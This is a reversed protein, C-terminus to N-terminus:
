GAAAAARGLFGTGTGVAIIRDPPTWTKISEGLQRSRDSRDVRCNFVCVKAHEPFRRVCLEWIQASSVPDNAAFANVFVIERGFYDLHFFILAGPDPSARRMGALASERDVGLADCVRLALAVNERHEFYQFG